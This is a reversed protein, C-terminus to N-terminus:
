RYSKKAGGKALKPALLEIAQELTVDEVAVDKPLSAYTRGVKVFPGYRGAGATIM